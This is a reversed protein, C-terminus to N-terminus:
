KLILFEVDTPVIWENRTFDPKRALKLHIKDATTLDLGETEPIVQFQSASINNFDKQALKFNVKVTSPFTKIEKNFASFDIPTEVSSETFKEVRIRVNVRGPEFHLLEPYSNQIGVTVSVDRDLNNLVVPETFVSNLTDLMHKPGYVTIKRPTLIAAEYVDYQAKFQLIHKEVVEVERSYLDEMTFGITTKSFDIETEPIAIIEALLDRLEQTYVFYQDNEQHVPQVQSLDITINRRNEGMNLKLITFGRAKFNVNITSDQLRTLQKEAPVHDFSIRFAYNVSYLESLKILTWFVAAIIICIVFIINDNSREKGHGAKAGSATPQKKDRTQM